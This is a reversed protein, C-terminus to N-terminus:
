ETALATNMSKLFKSTGIFGIERLKDIEKGSKSLFVLTPMGTVKFTQMFKKTQADPATCDVKIMTFSKALAVVQPDSFTQRDLQKCPACWDAYFDMFVPKGDRILEETSQNSYKIWNIESPKSHIADYTWNVGLAILLIGFVARGIKFGKTYGPEHDLFGLLLGGFIGLIGIFFGLKNYIQDLQPILFYIAVGVLLVGFLKRIWTMWMGSQPLKDLLGSFTALILYPVGLGLGMVFFLLTGKVVLGLKAVLGVLGIIIGAACPAIVFGVTLGMIFSGVTGERSRGVINMLFAPVTIEFAGFMSAAMALIVLVIFVVFWPSQFLFGWQKGALGSILGLAAFTLAIGLLYFLANVFSSGRSRGSQGGFYSVTMPIVPYVCPTLNLALGILFFAFIAYLLGQELIQKARLENSTFSQTNEAAENEYSGAKAFIDQNTKRVDSADSVVDLTIEFSAEGPAFCVNEDCGQYSVSGKITKSELSLNPSTSVNIFVVVRGEYVSIKNDSFSFTKLDPKPFMPKGFSMDHSPDFKIITPILFDETPKNSNIHLGSKIDIIVALDFDQGRVIKDQSSVANVSLVERTNGFQAFSQAVVFLLIFFLLLHKKTM